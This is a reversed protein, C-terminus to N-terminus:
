GNRTVHVNAPRELGFHERLTSGSYETRFLGRSQLEPIVLEVFDELAGDMYPPFIMFGDAARENFWHEIFDAIETPSGVVEKFLTHRRYYRFLDALSIGNDGYLWRATHLHEAVAETPDQFGPVQSVPTAPEFGDLTVGLEQSLAQLDIPIPWAEQVQRYLAHAQQSTRATYVAIGSIVVQAAPDRGAAAAREKLHAYYSRAGDLGYSSSDTFRIDALRAGLEVANESRGANVIPLQGQIPREVNLPGEVSFFKGRHSIRHIKEPNLFLRQKDGPIADDEWSDWLSKVVEVFETAWEYRLSNDWHEKRGYNQAASKDEGTVINLGIRGGSLRDLTATARAVSYPEAYTVNVTVVIGIKETVGAVFGALSLAEPRMVQNPRENQLETSSAVRDGIFFFDFKGSEAVQAAKKFLTRDIEAGTRAGPLRWGAPHFGFPWITFGLHLHRKEKNM